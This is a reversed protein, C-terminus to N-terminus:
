KNLTTSLRRIQQAVAHWAEDRNEWKTIPRGKDPLANFRAFPTNEWNCPRVIIPVVLAEGREHRQTAIEIEKWVYETALFDSSVLLVVVDANSLEQRISKDWEEGPLIQSDDWVIISEERRLPALHRKLVNLHELDHKSYSFFIKLPKPTFFNTIFVNDILQLVAVESFSRQCQIARVQLKRARQLVEYDYFHPETSFRCEGCNCPILKKVRLNDYTANLRDVEEAIVTLLEKSEAGVARIHINRSGYTEAMKAKSDGRHLIVGTRWSERNEDRIYRHLRVILRSLMGKPMFEYQYRLQLDGTKVWNISNPPEDAPLLQPAIYEEKPADPIRYCLEFKLMLQMLEDRMRRYSEEAWIREAMKRDFRGTADRVEADDLVRYVGATAWDNDLIVTHKLIPDDQFHLFFGLDHLYKSLFLALEENQGHSTCVSLYTELSIHSTTKKMTELVNRIAVWSISFVTGIHPLRKMEFEILAKLNKLGAEDDKLDLHVFEKINEFRGRLGPENLDKKRGGKCNQVIIVPSKDSLMEIIQLWYDFDHDEKRADVVLVYLSRKTLFFQHTAHYIEQGGFDWLHAKFEQGPSFPFRMAHVEIGHTSENEEPMPRDFGELLRRALTTKGAGGAGLILLKAEYLRQISQSGLYRFYQLIAESGQKVIEPPPNTLPCDKVLIYPESIEGEIHSRENRLEALDFWYAPIGKEILPVIPSLDTIATGYLLLKELRSLFKVPSIDTVPNESLDLIELNTLNSLPALDEIANGWAWFERM